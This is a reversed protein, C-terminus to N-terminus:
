PPVSEKKIAKWLAEMQEQQQPTLDHMVIFCDDNQTFAGRTWNASGHVLTKGDIYLFKHHFLGSGQSLAVNIKNDKLYQVVPASKGKGFTQDIVIEADVGRKSAEVVEKALDHRTWAFMAVRITKEAGRILNKLRQLAEKNNDPLFWMEIPQGGVMFKEYPSPSGVGEEKLTEAKAHIKNALDGNHLATVLNPYWHLSEPSMNASGLWVKEKDVVLIKQHMLGPGFRRTLDVKDGIKKAVQPSAKADCIVKVKVGNESQRKLCEIIEDDTLSYILFLISKKAEDLAASYTRSLDDDIQNAYLEIPANTDPTRVEYNQEQIWLVIAGVLAFLFSMLNRKLVKTPRKKKM